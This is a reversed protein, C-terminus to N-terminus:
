QVDRYRNARKAAYDSAARQAPQLLGITVYCGPCFFLEGRASVACDSVLTEPASETLARVNEPGMALLHSFAVSAPPPTPTGVFVMRTRGSTTRTGDRSRKHARKLALGEAGRDGLFSSFADALVRQASAEAPATAAKRLLGHLAARLARTEAGSIVRRQVIARPGATVPPFSCPPRNELAPLIVGVSRAGSDSTTGPISPRATLVRIAPRKCAEATVRRMARFRLVVACLSALNATRVASPANYFLSDLADTRLSTVPALVHTRPLVRAVARYAPAAPDEGGIALRSLGRLFTELVALSSDSHASAAGEPLMLTHQSRNWLASLVAHTGTARLADATPSRPLLTVNITELSVAAGPVKRRDCLAREAASVAEDANRFHGALARKLVDAGAAAPTGSERLVDAVAWAEPPARRERLAYEGRRQTLALAGTAASCTAM